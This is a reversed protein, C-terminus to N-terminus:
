AMRFQAPKTASVLSHHWQEAEHMTKRSQTHMNDHMGVWIGIEVVLHQWFVKMLDVDRGM